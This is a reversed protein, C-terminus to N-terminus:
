LSLPSPATAAEEPAAFERDLLDLLEVAAAAVTFRTVNLVGVPEQDNVLKLPESILVKRYNESMDDDVHAGEKNAVGLVVEKRSLPECGPVKLIPKTWWTNLSCEHYGSMDPHPDISLPVTTGFRFSFPFHMLTIKRALPSFGDSPPMVAARIRLALYDTRLRRLVPVSNGTEHVLARISTALSLAHVLEGQGIGEIASRMLSRHDNLRQLYFAKRDANRLKGM